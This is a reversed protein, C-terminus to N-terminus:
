SYKKRYLIFRIIRRGITAASGLAFATSTIIFLNLAIMLSFKIKM